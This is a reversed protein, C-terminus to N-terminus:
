NYGRKRGILVLNDGNWWHARRGKKEYYAAEVELGALRALRKLERLTFARYYLPHKGTNDQFYTIVDKFTGLGFDLTWFSSVKRRVGTEPSRVVASWVTKKGRALRWLNWNTMILRGGPKLAAALNRMAKLRLEESPLHNLVALCFVIDWGSAPGGKASFEQNFALDLMDKVQFRGGTTKTLEILKESNDVGLYDVQKDKLIQYLRGNGCGADLVRQGAKVFQGVLKEMIPWPKHRTHSFKEAIADYSQRTEFLTKEAETKNM